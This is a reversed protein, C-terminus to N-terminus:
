SGAPRDSSGDASSPISDSLFPLDGVECLLWGDDDRLLVGEERLDTVAKSVSPRRAAVLEGLLGHTLQLPVHICGPRRRGFRDALHCFLAILRDEVRPQCLSSLMTALRASRQLSRQNLIIAMEPFRAVREAFPRDLIALEAPMVVSWRCEIPLSSWSAFSSWPQVLDGPGVLEAGTRGHQDIRRCLVGSLLLLGYGSEAAERPETELVPGRAHWVRAASLRHAEERLEPLLNPALDPDERLVSVATRSGNDSGSSAGIWSTSGTQKLPM